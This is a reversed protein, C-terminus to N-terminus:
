ASAAQEMDGSADSETVATGATDATGGTRAAAPRLGELLRLM